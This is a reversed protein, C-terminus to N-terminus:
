PSMKTKPAHLDGLAQRAPPLSLLLLLTMIVASTLCWICVAKIVFPELYTLYLSFLVGFLSMGFVALPALEALRDHRLRSWVWAVLIMLYGIVGLVGVPLLGVLRAYPSSQVMNCNGVPGCVAEVMQTEVYALYGAVGLGLLCLVPFALSRWQKSPKPVAFAGGRSIGRALRVDTYVLAGVMGVLVIVALTFGNSPPQASPPKSAMFIAPAATPAADESCPTSPLCIDPHDTAPTPIVAALVAVDPYDVGGQDLYHDILGPLEKPIQASGKLVRDGIVLLPVGVDNKAIGFAAATQYLRDLDKTTQLEILFIELQDGYKRYLPPLVEDLVYHCNGCGDSWFMVARVVPQQPSPTGLLSQAFGPRHVSFLGMIFPIVVLWRLPVTTRSLSRANMM